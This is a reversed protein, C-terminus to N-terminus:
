NALVLMAAKRQPDFFRRVYERGILEGLRDDVLNIARRERTPTGRSARVIKSFTDYSDTFRQPLFRGAKDILHFSAWAKLTDLPTSAWLAAIGTLADRQVVILRQRPGAPLGAVRLMGSWPLGPSNQALAGLTTPNISKAPDDSDTRSYSVKAIATEFNVVAAAHRAADGDGALALSREVYPQLAARPTKFRDLLYYDRDPFTLGGQMVGIVERRADAPDADVDFTVPGTTFGPRAVALALADRDKAATIPALDAVLPAIGRAEITATDMYSRYLAGIQSTPPSTEIIARMRAESLRRLDLYPGTSGSDAPIEASKAWTGDAYADFDDGPRVNLDRATLDVGWKGYVKDALPDGNQAM